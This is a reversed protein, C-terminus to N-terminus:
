ELDRIFRRSERARCSSISGEAVEDLGDAEVRGDALITGTRGRSGLRCGARFSFTMAFCFPSGIAVGESGSISAWTMRSKALRSISFADEGSEVAFVLAGAFADGASTAMWETKMRSARSM